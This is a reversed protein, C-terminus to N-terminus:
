SLSLIAETYGAEKQPAKYGRAEIIKARITRIALRGGPALSDRGTRIIRDYGTMLTLAFTSLIGNVGTPFAFSAADALVLEVNNWGHRSVRKNAQELMRDTLDVGIIRGEPGIIRQLLPFNLGTGCGLEVVVDGKKLQLADVARQRYHWERLGILYYLNATLNYREARKRYLDQIKQRNLAM